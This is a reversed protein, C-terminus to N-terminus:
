RKEYIFMIVILSYGYYYKRLIKQSTSLQLRALKIERALGSSYNPENIICKIEVPIIKRTEKDILLLDPAIAISKAKKDEVLFGCHFKIVDLDM